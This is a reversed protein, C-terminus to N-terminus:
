GTGIAQPWLRACVLKALGVKCQQLDFTLAPVGIAETSAVGFDLRANFRVSLLKENDDIVEKLNLLQAHDLSGLHTILMERDM